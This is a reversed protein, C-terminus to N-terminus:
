SILLKKIIDDWTDTHASKVANAQISNYLEKDRFLNNIADAMENELPNAIVGNVKDHVFELVGGSDTATIVPKGSAFAELTVFGYDEDYPAYYVAFSQAFLKLLFAKDVRGLFEVRHWLHHKEIENHLYDEVGDEDAVGVIKLHLADDIKPLSKIILDVRKISCIRGVSLIYPPTAYAESYYQGEMPLPPLLVGGPLNSAISTDAQQVDCGLGLGLYREMRLRVNSSITYIAQAEAFAKLDADYVLQRFAEDEYSRGYEGFRSGFLDYLQRHQHVLWISKNPHSVLYSPFKTSILVDVERGSFRRVDLMQWQLMSRLIDERSESSFPLQVVDVRHGRNVLEAKLLDVLLEAGGRTFPVQASAILINKSM